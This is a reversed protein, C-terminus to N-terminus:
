IRFNRVAKPFVTSVPTSGRRSLFTEAQLLSVNTGRTESQHYHTKARWSFPLSFCFYECSERNSRFLEWCDMKWNKSARLSCNQSPMSFTYWLANRSTCSRERRHNIVEWKCIGEKKPTITKIEAKSLEPTKISPAIDLEWETVVKLYNKVRHYFEEEVFM